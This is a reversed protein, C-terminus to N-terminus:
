YLVKLNDFYLDASTIGFPLESRIFIKYNIINPGIVGLDRLNLFIKKWVPTARVNVLYSRNVGGSNTYFVGITFETDGKYNLEVYPTSTPPFVLPVDSAVEFIPQNSDITTTGSAGEFANTDGQATLRLYANDTSTNVLSLSGDDFDEMQCFVDNSFYRVVPRIPVTVNEKLEITTDWTALKMYASRTASVGNENIGARVSIKHLGTALVPFTVPNEFTGLYDNDVYVWSDRYLHKSSGQTQYDTEFLISDIGVYGPIQEPADEFLDCGTVFSLMVLVAVSLGQSRM